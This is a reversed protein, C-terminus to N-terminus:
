TSPLDVTTSHLNGSSTQQIYVVRVAGLCDTIQKHVTQMEDSTAILQKV